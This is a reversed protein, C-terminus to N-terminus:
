QTTVHEITTLNAHALDTGVCSLKALTGLPFGALQARLEVPVFCSRKDGGDVSVGVRDASIGAIPGTFTFM